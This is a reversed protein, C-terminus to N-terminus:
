GEPKIRPKGFCLTWCSTLWIFKNFPAATYFLELQNSGSLTGSCLFGQAIRHKFDFNKSRVLEGRPTWTAVSGIMNNPDPTKQGETPGEMTEPCASSEERIKL